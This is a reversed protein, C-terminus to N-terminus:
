KKPNTNKAFTPTKLKEVSSDFEITVAPAAAVGTLNIKAQIYKDNMYRLTKADHYSKLKGPM